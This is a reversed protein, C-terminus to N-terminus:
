EAIGLRTLFGQLGERALLKHLREQEVTTMSELSDIIQPLLSSSTAM